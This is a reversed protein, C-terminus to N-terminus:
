NLKQQAYLEFRPINIYFQKGDHIRQLLYTGYMYGVESDLRCGSVYNHSNSPPILPQLGIVGEGEVEKKEGNSDYIFWHRRLLKVNYQGGNTINVKYAFVYESKLPNSHEAQYYSEVSVKIGRTVESVM